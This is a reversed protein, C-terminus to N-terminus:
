GIEEITLTRNEKHSANDLYLRVYEDTAQILGELDQSIISNVIGFVVRNNAVYEENEIFDSLIVNIKELDQEDASGDFSVDAVYQQISTGDNEEKVTMISNIVEMINSNSKLAESDPFFVVRKLKTVLLFHEEYVDELQTTSSFDLDPFQKLYKILKSILDKPFDERVFATRVLIDLNLYELFEDTTIKEADHKKSFNLAGTVFYFLPQIQSIEKKSLQAIKCLEKFILMMQEHTARSLVKGFDFSFDQQKLEEFFKSAEKPDIKELEDFVFRLKELAQQSSLDKNKLNNNLLSLAQQYFGEEEDNFTITENKSM